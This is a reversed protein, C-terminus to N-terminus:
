LLDSNVVYGTAADEDSDMFRSGPCPMTLGLNDKEAELLDSISKYEKKQGKICYISSCPSHAIRIHTVKRSDHVKSITFSGPETASFRVLHFGDARGNLLRQSQPGSLHGHFWHRSCLNGVRKFFSNDFPGFWNMLSGFWECSIRAKSSVGEISGDDKENMLIGLQTLQNQLTKSRMEPNAPLRFWKLMARICREIKVGEPGASPFFKLWFRQADIDHPVSIEVLGDTLTECIEEFEPRDEVDDGWCQEILEVLIPYDQRADEEIEPRSGEDVVYDTFGDISISDLDEYPRKRTLIQWLLIGYAYVDAATSVAEGALVEPALYNATGRPGFSEKLLFRSGGQLISSLGFDAIKLHLMERDLLCNSPKLDRHLVPPDLKHLWTMGLAVQRGFGVLRGLSLKFNPDYLIRELDRHMLEQVIMLQDGTVCAGMLLVVNPHYLRQHVAIEERFKKLGQTSALKDPTNDLVKV